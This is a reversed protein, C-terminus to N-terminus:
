KSNRYMQPTMGTYTRFYRNFTTPTTFGLSAAIKSVANHTGKLQNKADMIILHTIIEQPTMSVAHSIVNCFHSLTLKVENAYFSIRHEVRYNEFALQLFESLIDHERTSHNKKDDPIRKRISVTISDIFLDMISMIIHHSFSEGNQQFARSITSIADAYISGIDPPLEIVPNRFSSMLISSMLKRFKVSALFSSSFGVFSIKVDPSMEHVQIFSGPIIIILSDATISYDWLNITAKVTGESIYAFICAEIKCPFSGYFNLLESSINNEGIFDVPLDFQPLKKSKDINLDKLSM